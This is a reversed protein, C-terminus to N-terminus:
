SSFSPKKKRSSFRLIVIALLLAAIIGAGIRWYALWSKDVDEKALLDVQGIEQEDMVVSLSGVAAGKRVPAELFAPLNEVLKVADANKRFVTVKIGDAAVVDVMDQQGRKVPLSQIVQGQTCAEKLEFNRFGFNLLKLAENERDRWSEAGMIVAILRRGDRKATALLHYGSSEIHGTKLGDVGVDRTLLRNRNPQTINNYTFETLSHFDLVPPYEKIYHFALLAMDRATTVQGDTEAALGNSDKFVTHELGLKRAAQNMQEVFVEEKGAVYEAVAVCADNGSVVAIGKLLDSVPVMTNVEIFMRSGGTRWAKESVAVMDDASITGNKIAEQALYLTMVKTFSAPAIVEDANQEILFQGTDYDLLAGARAKITYNVEAHGDINGFVVGLLISWVTVVLWYTYRVM